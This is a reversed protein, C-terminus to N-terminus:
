SEKICYKHYTKNEGKTYRFILSNENENISDVLGIYEEGVCEVEISDILKGSESTYIDYTQKYVEGEGNLEEIIIYKGTSSVILDSNGTFRVKIKDVKKEDAWAMYVEKCIEGPSMDTTDKCIVIGTDYVKGAPKNDGEISVKGDFDIFGFCSESQADKKPYYAGYFAYGKDGKVMSYIHTIRNDAIEIKDILVKETDYVNIAGGDYGMIAYKGVGANYEVVGMSNPIDVVKSLEKKEIDYQQLEKGSSTGRSVFVINDEYDYINLQGKIGVQKLSSEDIKGAIFSGIEYTTEKGKIVVIEKEADLYIISKGDFEKIQKAGKIIEEDNGTTEEKNENDIVSGTSKEKSVNAVMVKNPMENNGFTAPCAVVYLTNYEEIYYRDIDLENFDIDLHATDYNKGDATIHIADTELPIGNLLMTIVYETAEGGFARIDLSTVNDGIYVNGIYNEGNVLLEIKNDKLKNVADGHRDTYIYKDIDEQPMPMKVTEVKTSQANGKVDVNINLNGFESALPLISYAHGFSYTASTARSDSELVCGFTIPLIEGKSGYSPEFTFEVTTEKDSPFDVPVMVGTKNTEKVTYKQPVGSVFIIIAGTFEAGDNEVTYSMNIPEGNYPINLGNSDIYENVCFSYSYEEKQGANEKNDGNEKQINDMKVDENAEQESCACFFIMCLIIYYILKLKKM